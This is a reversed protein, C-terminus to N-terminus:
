GLRSHRRRYRRVSTLVLGVVVPVGADGGAPQEVLDLVVWPVTVDRPNTVPLFTFALMRFTLGFAIPVFLAKLIVRRKSSAFIAALSAAVVASRILTHAVLVMRVKPLQAIARELPMTGGCVGGLIAAAIGLVLMWRLMSARRTSNWLHYAVFGALLGYMTFAMSTRAVFEIPDGWVLGTLDEKSGDEHGLDEETVARWMDEWIHKWDLDTCSCTSFPLLMSVFSFLLFAVAFCAAAAFSGACFIPDTTLNDTALRKGTRRDFGCEICVAVERVMKGGCEPCHSSEAEIPRMPIAIVQGCWPCDVKEGRVNERLRLLGGCECRLTIVISDGTKVQLVGHDAEDPVAIPAHDDPTDILRVEVTAVDSRERALFDVKVSPQGVVLVLRDVISRLEPYSTFEAHKHCRRYRIRVETENRCLYGVIFGAVILIPLFWNSGFFLSVVIGLGLGGLPAWLPWFPNVVSRVEDDWDRHSAQGCVVCCEPLRIDWRTGNWEANKYVDLGTVAIQRQRATSDGSAGIYERLQEWLDRGHARYFHAVTKAGVFGRRLSMM